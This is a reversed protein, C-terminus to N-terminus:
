LCLVMMRDPLGSGLNEGPSWLGHPVFLLVLEVATGGLLFVVGTPATVTPVSWFLTPSEDSASDEVLVCPDSTLWLQRSSFPWACVVLFLSTVAARPFKVFVLWGPQAAGGRAPRPALGSGAM